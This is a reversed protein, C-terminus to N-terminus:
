LKNTVQAQYRDHQGREDAGQHEVWRSGALRRKALADRDAAILEEGPAGPNPHVARISGPIVPIVKPASVIGGKPVAM